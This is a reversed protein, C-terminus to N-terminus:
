LNWEKELEKLSTKKLKQRNKATKLAKVTKLNPEMLLKKVKIGNSKM